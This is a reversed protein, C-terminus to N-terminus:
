MKNLNDLFIRRRLANPAHADTLPLIPEDNDKSESENVSNKSSAITMRGEYFARVQLYIIILQCNISM